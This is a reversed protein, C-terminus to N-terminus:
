SLNKKNNRGAYLYYEISKRMVAYKNNLHSYVTILPIEINYFQFENSYSVGCGNVCGLDSDTSERSSVWSSVTSTATSSAASM